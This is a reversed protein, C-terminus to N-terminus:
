TFQLRYSVRKYSDPAIKQIQFKETIKKTSSICDAIGCWPELCLFPAKKHPPTWIGILDFNDYVMQIQHKQDKHFLKITTPGKTEYILSDNDFLQYNLQKTKPKDVLERQDYNVYPGELPYYMLKESENEISLYYDTFQSDDVFPVNFAPHGGISAYMEKTDDLNNIQMSVKVENETTLEYTITLRFNFPYKTKTEENADLYFAIMQDTQNLVKFEMDRAFGHQSLEYANDQYYYTNDKLRGVIPFLIPAHRNWYKADGQWVYEKQQEKDYISICEAGLSKIKVSLQQNEIHYIEM